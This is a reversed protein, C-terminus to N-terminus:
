CRAGRIVEGVWCRQARLQARVSGAAGYVLLGYWVFPAMARRVPMEVVRNEVARLGVPVLVALRALEAERARHAM